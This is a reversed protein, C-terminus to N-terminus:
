TFSLLTLRPIFAWFLYLYICLVLAIVESRHAKKNVICPRQCSKKKKAVGCKSSYAMCGKKIQRHLSFPM